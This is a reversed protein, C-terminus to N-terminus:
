CISPSISLYNSLHMSISLPVCPLVHFHLPLYSFFYWLLYCIYCIHSLSQQQQVFQFLLPIGQTQKREVDDPSLRQLDIHFFIRFVCLSVRFYFFLFYLFNFSFFFSFCFSLAVFEPHGM